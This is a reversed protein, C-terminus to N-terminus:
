KCKQYDVCMVFMFHVGLCTVLILRAGLCTVLIFTLILCCEKKQLGSVDGFYFMNWFVDGFDFVSGFM